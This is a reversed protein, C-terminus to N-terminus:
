GAGDLTTLWEGPAFLPMVLEDLEVERTAFPLRAAHAPRVEDAVRVERVRDVPLAVTEDGTGVIVTRARSRELREGGVFVALDLVAVARGRWPLVGVLGSTGGPVATVSAAGMVEWVSTAALAIWGGGITVPLVHLSADPREGTM